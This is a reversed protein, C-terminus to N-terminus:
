QVTNPSKAPEPASGAASKDARKEGTLKLLLRQGDRFRPAEELSELVHKKAMAEDSSQLLKALRFHVDALDAPDFRLLNSYAATALETKGVAESARGLFRYPTGALPNVALYRDANAAVMSWQGKESGLEMLRLYAELASADQVALKALTREEATADKSARYVNALLLYANGSGIQDPYHELLTLLPVKAEDWRKAEVLKRATKILAFYNKPFKELV